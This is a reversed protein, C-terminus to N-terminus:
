ARTSAQARAAAAFLSEVRAVPQTALVRRAATLGDARAAAWRDPDLHARIAKAWADPDDRPAVRQGPPVTERLGGGDSALTPVGAALGEFAVRGFPEDLQSPVLLLAAGDLVDDIEGPAPRLTVNPLAALEAAAEPPLGAPPVQVVVHRDGVRRAIPALLQVGKDVTWFSAMAAVHGSVDAAAPRPGATVPPVVHPRRRCARECAEAMTESPAILLAANALAEDQADREAWKAAREGDDLGLARPCERCRSEPRCASRAGFAWHCPAEYGPVFLAGAAGAARAADVAAPGAHLQGAVVNAPRLELARVLARRLAERRAARATWSPGEAPTELPTWEVGAPVADRAASGFGFARVRHRPALGAALELWFREAGGTPPALSEAAFVIELARDIPCVYWRPPNPEATLPV